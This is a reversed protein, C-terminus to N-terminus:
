IRTGDQLEVERSHRDLVSVSRGSLFEVSLGALTDPTTLWASAPEAEGKLVQKSLPPREYPPHVEDGILVLRGSYGHKRLTHAGWYGAQGAGVIVIAEAPGMAM